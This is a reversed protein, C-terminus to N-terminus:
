PITKAQHTTSAIGRTFVQQGHGAAIYIPAVLRCPTSDLYHLAFVLERLEDAPRVCANRLAKAHAFWKRDKGFRSNNKHEGEAESTRRNRHERLVAAPVTTTSASEM